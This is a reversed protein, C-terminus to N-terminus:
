LRTRASYQKFVEAEADDLAEDITSQGSGVKSMAKNIAASIAPYIPTFPEAWGGQELAAAAMQQFPDQRFFDSTLYVSRRTPLWVASENTKRNADAGTAHLTWAIAAKEKDPYAQNKVPCILWGGAVYNGESVQEPHPLPAAKWDDIEDPPLNPIISRERANSNSVFMMVDGAYVGPLHDAHSATVNQAPILDNNLLDSYFRFMEELIQRNEPEFITPRGDVDVIQGGFAKFMGMNLQSWHRLPYSMGYKGTEKKVQAAIAKVESWTSPPAPIVRSNYFLMPTDTNHWLCGLAGDISRLADLTWQFYDELEEKPTNKDINALLSSSKLSVYWQSNIWVADVTGENIAQAVSAQNVAGTIEQVVMGNDMNNFSDIVSQFALRREPRRDKSSAWPPTLFRVTTTNKDPLIQGSKSVDKQDAAPSCSQIQTLVFLVAGTALAWNKPKFINQM